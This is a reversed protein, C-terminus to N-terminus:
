GRTNLARALEKISVGASTTTTPEPIITNNTSAEAKTSGKVKKLDSLYMDFMDEALGLYFDKRDEINIGVEALAETRAELKKLEAAEALQQKLTTLEAQAAQATDAQSKLADFRKQIGSILKGFQEAVTPMDTTALQSELEYSQDLMQWLGEYMNSLFDMAASIDSQLTTVDTTAQASNETNQENNQVAENDPMSESEGNLAEAIALLRTRNPGYAPTEVICTGAFVCGKLWQIGNDDTESDEYYIEWSTGVGEAFAAKLHEAIDTNLDKWIVGDGAIVAKGNDEAMYVNTIPGIPKAGSHGSYVEGDFNIKIPANIASQIIHEAEAQPIGQKNRNPEFDTIILSLKTQFPHSQEAVARIFGNMQAQQTM